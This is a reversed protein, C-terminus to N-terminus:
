LCLIKKFTRSLPNFGNSLYATASMCDAACWLNNYSFSLKTLYPESIIYKFGEFISSFDNNHLVKYCIIDKKTIKVKKQKTVLCM